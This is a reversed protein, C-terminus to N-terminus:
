FTLSLTGLFRQNPPLTLFDARSAEATGAFNIEPDLGSYGTFTALNEGVVSLSAGSAGIPAVWSEPLQFRVSATRLKAYAADEIWPAEEGALAAAHKLRAEDTFSGGEKEFIAGCIGGGAGGGLFGCAFEETASFNQHGGAFDVLGHVTVRDFLSLTTSVSGEWEPTPHGHFSATDGQVVSGGEVTFSNTFYSGFPFGEQHRQSSGGLGFIIPESLQTVEGDNTSLNVRWDWTFDGVDVATADLGFEFGQSVIEGVNTPQQGPFGFSPKLPQFVIADETTQHYYTAQLSLRGELVSMDFGGEWETTTEPALDFNGPDTVTVGLVSQGQFTVQTPNLLRRAANVGPQLGAKGWAGRLRFQDFVQPFWGEESMIWSFSVSPLEQIGLNEGQASNDDLRLAPTLFIRDKWGLQEQFFVGATIEENFTEGGTTSVACSVTTCGAPLTQGDSFTGESVERFWQGGVTTQSNLNETLDLNLTSTAELTLNRQEEQFTFKFGESLTGFPLDPNM